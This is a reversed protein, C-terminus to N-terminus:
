ENHIFLTKNHTSVVIQKDMLGTISMQDRGGKLYQLNHQLLSHTYSYKNPYMNEIIKFM